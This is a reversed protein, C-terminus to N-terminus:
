IVVEPVRGRMCFKLPSRQRPHDPCIALTVRSIHIYAPYPLDSSIFADEAATLLSLLASPIKM